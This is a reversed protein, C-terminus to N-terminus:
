PLGLCPPQRRKRLSLHFQYTQEENNKVCSSLDPAPINNIAEDVYGKSTIKNNDSTYPANSAKSLSEINDTDLTLNQTIVKESSKINDIFLNQTKVTSANITDVNAYEINIYEEIPINNYYSSM